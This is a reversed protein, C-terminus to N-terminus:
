SPKRLGLRRSYQAVKCDGRAAMIFMCHTLVVMSFQPAYHADHSKDRAVFRKEPRMWM